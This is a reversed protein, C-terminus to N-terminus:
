PPQFPITILPLFYMSPKLPVQIRVSVKRDARCECNKQLHHYRRDDGSSYLKCITGMPIIPRCGGQPNPAPSGYTITCVLIVEERLRVRWLQPQDDTCVTQDDSTIENGTIVPVNLIEVPCSIDRCADDNGSLVERRYWTTATLTWAPLQSYHGRSGRGMPRDRGASSEWRYRWNTPDPDGGGLSIEPDQIILDPVTNFCITDYDAILNGSIPAFVEVKLIAATDM